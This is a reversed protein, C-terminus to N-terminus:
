MYIADFGGTASQVCLNLDVTKRGFKYSPM